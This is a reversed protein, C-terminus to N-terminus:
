RVPKKWDFPDFAPSYVDLTEAFGDLGPFLTTRSIGMHFLERLATSRISAPVVIRLVRDRLNSGPLAALNEEFTASVDGPVLFVGKQIRLRENLRFPNQPSACLVAENGMFLRRFMQEDGSDQYPTLIRDYPEKGEREFAKASQQAAWRGHVAWVVSEGTAKEIAFYTAVYISYTFDLLRTPAGHHQMLALWELTSEALPVHDSYHHYTRKFERILRQEL